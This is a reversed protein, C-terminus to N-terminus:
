QASAGSRLKPASGALGARLRAMQQQAAEALPSKHASNVVPALVSIAEAWRHQSELEDVLMQRFRLDRPLTAVAAALGDLANPPAKLGAARYGEYFAVLPLPDNTDLQNAKVALARAAAAKAERAQGALHRAAQSMARSKLVMGRVHRSDAALLHDAAKEAADANGAALEAEGLLYLAYPDDPHRAAKRRINELNSQRLTQERARDTDKRIASLDDNRFAVTEPVLDAEGASLTRVNEILPEKIPVLVPRYELSGAHLYALAERNLQDLDGFAMAAEERSKGANLAQLYQRLQSSRTKSFTLFHTLAWGQGYLGFSKIQDPPLLFLKKLPYWGYAIADGRHKAPFGYGIRGDPLFKSSGILEAFGETYWLPYAAPFYQLMFHHAYEHHLVLDRTFPDGTFTLRRSTVAFPGLINSTYFGAVGTGSEGMAVQVEREDDLEYIRVKVPNADGLGTAMRMLGDISELRRALEHVDKQGSESYLIFHATEYARWEARAPAASLSLFFVAFMTLLVRM